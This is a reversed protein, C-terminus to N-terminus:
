NTTEVPEFRMVPFFSDSDAEGTELCSKIGGVREKMEIGYFEVLDEQVCRLVHKPQFSDTDGTSKQVNHAFRVLARGFHSLLEKISTIRETKDVSVIAVRGQSLVWGWLKDVSERDRQYSCGAWLREDDETVDRVNGASM